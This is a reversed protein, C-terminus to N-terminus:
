WKQLVDDIRKKEAFLKLICSSDSVETSIYMKLGFNDRIVKDVIRIPEGHCQMSGTM